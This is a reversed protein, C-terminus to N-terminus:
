RLAETGALLWVLVNAAWLGAEIFYRAQMM